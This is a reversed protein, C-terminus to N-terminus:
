DATRTGPCNFLWALRRPTGRTARSIIWCYSLSAKPPAMSCRPLDRIPHRGRRSARDTIGALVLKGGDRDLVVHRNELSLLGFTAFHAMWTSYGFIYEHNGSIVYVGDAAKLDRLPEIDTCDRM